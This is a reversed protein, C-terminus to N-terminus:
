KRNDHLLQLMEGSTRVPKSLPPLFSAILRFLRRLSGQSPAAGCGDGQNVKPFRIGVLRAMELLIAREGRTCRVVVSVDFRDLIPPFATGVLAEVRRVEEGHSLWGTHRYWTEALSRLQGISSGSLSFGRHSVVTATEPSLPVIGVTSSSSSSQHGPLVLSELIALALNDYGGKFRDALLTNLVFAHLEWGVKTAASCRKIPALVLTDVMMVLSAALGVSAIVSVPGPPTKAATISQLHHSVTRPLRQHFLGTVLSGLDGVVGMKALLEDSSKESRNVWVLQSTKESIGQILGLCAESNIDLVVGHIGNFPITMGPADHTKILAGINSLALPSNPDLLLEVIPFMFILSNCAHLAFPAIPMERQATLGTSGVGCLDEFRLVAFFGPQEEAYFEKLLSAVTPCQSKSMFGYHSVLCQTVFNTASQARSSSAHTTLWVSELYEQLSVCYRNLGQCILLVVARLFAQGSPNTQPPGRASAWRRAVPLFEKSLLRHIIVALQCSLKIFHLRQLEGGGEITAGSVQSRIENSFIRCRSSLISGLARLVPEVDTVASQGALAFEFAAVVGVTTDDAVSPLHTALQLGGRSDSAAKLSGEMRLYVNYLAVIQENTSVVWGFKYGLRFYHSVQLSAGLGFFFSHRAYGRSTTGDTSLLSNPVSQNLAHASFVTDSAIARQSATTNQLVAMMVETVREHFCAPAEDGVAVLLALWLASHGDFLDRRTTSAEESRFLASMSSDSIGGDDSDSLLEMSPPFRKAADDLSEIAAGVMKSLVKRMEKNRNNFYDEVQSLSTTVPAVSGGKGNDTMSRVLASRFHLAEQESQKSRPNDLRKAIELLQTACYSATEPPLCVAFSIKCLVATAMLHIEQVVHPPPNRDDITDQPPGKVIDKPALSRGALPNREPPKRGFLFGLGPILGGSSPSQIDDFSVGSGISGFNDLAALAPAALTALQLSSTHPLMCFILRLSLYQVSALRPHMQMLCGVYSLLGGEVAPLTGQRCCLAGGAHPHMLMSALDPFAKKYLVTVDGTCMAHHMDTRTWTGIVDLPYSSQDPQAVEKRGGFWSYLMEM